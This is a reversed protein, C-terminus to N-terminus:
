SLTTVERDRSITGNRSHMWQWAETSSSVSPFVPDQQSLIHSPCLDWFRDSANKQQVHVFQPYGLKESNCDNPRDVLDKNEKPPSLKFFSAINKTRSLKGEKTNGLDM